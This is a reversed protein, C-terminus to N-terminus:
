LDASKYEAYQQKKGCFLNKELVKKHIAFVIKSGNLQM